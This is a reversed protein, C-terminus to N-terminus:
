ARQGRQRSKAGAPRRLPQADGKLVAIERRLEAITQEAEETEEGEPTEARKSLAEVTVAAGLGGALSFMLGLMAILSRNPRIPEEPVLPPDIMSFHEAHGAELNLRVRADSRTDSIERYRRTAAEYERTLALYDREVSPGEIIRREYDALRAVLHERYEDLSSLEGDVAALRARLTVYAPNDADLGLGVGGLGSETEASAAAAELAAIERRLRVVDPHVATYRASMAIFESRKSRLLAVPDLVTEGSSSVMPRWPTVQALDGELIHRREELARIQSDINVLHRETNDLLRLNM